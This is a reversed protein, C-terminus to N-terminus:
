RSWVVWKFGCPLTYRVGDSGVTSRALERVRFPEAHAGALRKLAVRETRTARACWRRYARYKQRRTLWRRTSRRSGAGDTIREFAYDLADPVAQREIRGDDCMFISFGSM